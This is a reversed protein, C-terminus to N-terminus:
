CPLNQEWPAVWKSLRILLNMYIKLNMSHSVQYIVQSTTCHTKMKAEVEMGDEMTSEHILLDSNRGIEILADCPMTDGSYTLKFGDATTLSVGFANPCHRVHTTVISKLNLRTMLEPDPTKGDFLSVAAILQYCNRIPEFDKHYTKLWYNIQHPAILMVPPTDSRTYEISHQRGQLLGILGIHHDAHLHSIYVGVLNSLVHASREHGFFRVIQGYTGEGCDM